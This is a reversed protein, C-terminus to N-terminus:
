LYGLSKLLEVTAADAERGEDCTAADTNCDFTPARWWKGFAGRLREVEEPFRDAVNTTEGPDADLDFLAWQSPGGGVWKAERKLPSFHLVFRRDRAVKIWARNSSTGAESFTVSSAASEPDGIRPWLSQGQAWRGEPLDVGAAAILTPALDLLQVPARDVAPELRGPWHLILPVHLCTQFGFRGHNFYYSHEGLSEGHDATFATLTDDLLKREALGSLLRGIEQDVYSIEADYRAIYFGLRKDGDVIQSKGIGALEQRHRNSTPVLIKGEFLADDQFRSRFPAPPRYPSHPDLYHVWLFWPKAPDLSAGTALALRTVNEGGNPDADDGSPPLKWTELFSEFGQDFFLHSGVAGNAVVAHTSYGARQLVEALMTFTCPIPIGVQRVIGNDKPYTSTFISAFSPGTKPWQSQAQDFRLGEGALRDINPSTPRPYGWASLHDARLTDVTILLINPPRGSAPLQFSATGPRGSARDEQKSPASTDCGAALLLLPLLGFLSLPPRRASSCARVLRPIPRNRHALAAVGPPPTLPARKL